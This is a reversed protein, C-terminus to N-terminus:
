GSLLAGAGSFAICQVDTRHGRLVQHPAPAPAPM